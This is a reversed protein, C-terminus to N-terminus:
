ILTLPLVVLALTPPLKSTVPAVMIFLVRDAYESVKFSERPTEPVVKKPEVRPTEPSVKKPVTGVFVSSLGRTNIQSPFRLTVSCVREVRVALVESRNQLASVM